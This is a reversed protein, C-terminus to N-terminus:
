NQQKVWEILRKIKRHFIRSFKLHKILDEDPLIKLLMFQELIERSSPENQWQRQEYFDHKIFAQIVLATSRTNKDELALTLYLELKKIVKPSPELSALDVEKLCAIAYVLNLMPDTKLSQKFTRKLNTLDTQQLQQKYWTLLEPSTRQQSKSSGISLVQKLEHLLEEFFESLDKQKLALYRYTHLFRFKQFCAAEANLIVPLIRSKNNKIQISLETNFELHGWNSNLFHQSFFVIIYESKELGTNISEVVSTGWKIQEQDVWYSIGEAELLKCFPNVIAPKDLSAHCIFVQYSLPITSKM